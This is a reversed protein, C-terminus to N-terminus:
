RRADGENAEPHYFDGGTQRGQVDKSAFPGSNSGCVRQIENLVNVLQARIQQRTKVAAETQRPACISIHSIHFRKRAGYARMTSAGVDKKAVVASWAHDGRHSKHWKGDQITSSRRSERDLLSQRSRSSRNIELNILRDRVLLLGILYVLPCIMSALSHQAHKIYLQVHNRIQKLALIKTM